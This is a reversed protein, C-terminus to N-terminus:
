YVRSHSLKAQTYTRKPASVRTIRKLPLNALQSARLAKFISSYNSPDTATALNTATVITTETLSPLQSAEKSPISLEFM